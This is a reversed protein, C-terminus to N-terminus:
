IQEAIKCIIIALIELIGVTTGIDGIKKLFRKYKQPCNPALFKHFLLIYVATGILYLPVIGPNKITDFWEFITIIFAFILLFAFVFRRQNPKYLM